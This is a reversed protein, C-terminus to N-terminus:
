HHDHVIWSPPGCIRYGLHRGVYAIDLITTWPQTTWSPPGCRAIARTTETMKCAGDGGGNKSILIAAIYLISSHVVICSPLWAITCHYVKHTHALTHLKIHGNRIQM